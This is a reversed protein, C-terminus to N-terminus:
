GETAPREKALVAYAQDREFERFRVLGELVAIREQQEALQQLALTWQPEGGDLPYGTM